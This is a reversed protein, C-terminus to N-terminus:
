ADGALIAALRYRSELLLTFLRKRLAEDDHERAVHRIVYVLFADWPELSKELAELEAETLPASSASSGPPSAAPAGLWADPIELAIPVVLQDAEIRPELARLGKLAEDMAAAQAPPAAGRLLAALADRSAGLNYSFRELRPHVHRKSLDWILGTGPTSGGADGLASDVIRLRLRGEGDIGPALTFQLTGRWAIPTQCSGLLEVGLAARGPGSLRLRGDLAELKPAGLQLYRCPGERYSTLRTALQERVLELPVRLPIELRAALATEACLVLLGLALRALPVM